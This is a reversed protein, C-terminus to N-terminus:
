LSPSSQLHLHTHLEPDGESCFRPCRGSSLRCSESHTHSRSPLRLSHGSGPHSHPRWRHGPIWRCRDLPSRRRRRGVQVCLHLRLAHQPSVHLALSLGLAAQQLRAGRDGVPRRHWRSSMHKLWGHWTFAWHLVLGRVPEVRQM